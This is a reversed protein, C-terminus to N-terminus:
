RDWLALAHGTAASRSPSRWRTRRKRSVLPQISRLSAKGNVALYAQEGSSRDKPSLFCHRLGGGIEVDKDDTGADRADPHRRMHPHFHGVPAEGNEFPSLVKAAGPIQEAIRTHAGVAVHMRQSEFEFRPTMFLRDGVARDYQAVELANGVFAADCLMDPKSVLNNRGIEVASGGVPLYGDFGAIAFPFLQGGVPEIQTGTIVVVVLREIRAEVEALEIALDNMRLEPRLVEVVRSLLHDDDAAPRRRDRQDRRHSSLRPM